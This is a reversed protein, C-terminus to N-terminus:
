EDPEAPESTALTRGRGDLARVAYLKAGREVRVSTEFGDKPARAVERLSAEDDGALVAWGAVATSGNWSAHVDNEDLDHREVAIAPKTDPRGVWAFRYARYSDVDKPLKADFLVAGDGDHESVYPEAGWGVVVDGGDRFQANGQSTSLLSRPHTVARAVTATMAQEDVRLALARSRQEKPPAAGDDFLTITGDARRQADHQWWFRAGPGMRFDSEKGGLRWIVDGTRRDLKYIASTNRASVLLNGDDDLAVSNVHFYDGPDLPGDPPPKFYSESRAVHDLSHWEFLLKGTAVDVEQVVGELTKGVHRYALLLATGRPTLTFEHEDAELGNAARVTAIRRYSEDVIAFRGKGYGQASHGEWWTLVPRGRYTQVRFDTAEPSVPHWWVVDGTGNAILAGRQEADRKPALFYYRRASPTEVELTPPRLDPRSAFTQARKAEGCGALLIAALPLLLLPRAQVRLIRGAVM